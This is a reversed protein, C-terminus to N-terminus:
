DEDGHRAPRPIGIDKALLSSDLLSSLNPLEYGRIILELVVSEDVNEYKVDLWEKFRIM